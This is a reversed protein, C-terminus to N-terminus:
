FRCVPPWFNYRMRPIRALNEDVAIIIKGGSISVLQAEVRRAGIQLEVRADEFLDADETFDFRYGHHGRDLAIFKGDELQIRRNGRGERKLESILATLAVAYGAARKMGESIGLTVDTRRQRVYKPPRGTVGLPEIRKFQHPPRLTDDPSRHYRREGADASKPQQPGRDHSDSNPFEGAETPRRTNNSDDKPPVNARELEAIRSEVIRRFAVAAPRDRNRLELAIASLLSVDDLASEYLERLQILTYRFYPRDHQSM